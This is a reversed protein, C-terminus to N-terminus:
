KEFYANYWKVCETIEDVLKDSVREYELTIPGNFGQKKLEVLIKDIQCAGQGYPVIHSGKGINQEDVLHMANFKGSLKKVGDLPTVGAVAWHGTDAGSGINKYGNLEKIVNEPLGAKQTHNHLAVKLGYEGALKDVLTLTQADKGAEIQVVGVGLAKVFKFLDRWESENGAGTVGFAVPKVKAATMIDKMTKVVTPDKSVGTTLDSNKTLKQGPYIEVFKFGQDSATKVADEFTMMRYSYLQLAFNPKWNQGFVSESFLAIMLFLSFIMLKKM